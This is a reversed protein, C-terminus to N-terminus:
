KIIKDQQQKEKHTINPESKKGKEGGFFVNV